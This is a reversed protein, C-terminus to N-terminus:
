RRPEFRISRGLKVLHFGPLKHKNDYVYRPSMGIREAVEKVTLLDCANPQETPKAASQILRAHLKERISGIIGLAEVVDQDPVDATLDKWCKPLVVFGGAHRPWLRAAEQEAPPFM